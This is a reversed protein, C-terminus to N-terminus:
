RGRTLQSWNKSAEIASERFVDRGFRRKAAEMSVQNYGEIYRSQSESVVCGAVPTTDIGFRGKLIQAYRPYWAVPLGATLYNHHGRALDVQAVLEGRVHATFYWAFLGVLSCLFLVSPILAKRVLRM